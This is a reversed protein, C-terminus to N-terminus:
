ADDHENVEIMKEYDCDGAFERPAPTEGGLAEIAEAIAMYDYYNQASELAENLFPLAEDDGLRSLCHALFAKDHESTLLKNGVAEVLEKDDSIDSLIDLYCLRKYEDGCKRYEALIDDKIDSQKLAEVLAEAFEGEPACSLM